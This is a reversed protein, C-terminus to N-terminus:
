KIAVDNGWAEKLDEIHLKVYAIAKKKKASRMTGVIRYDSFYISIKENGYRAHVHPYKVHESESSHFFYTIGDERDFVKANEIAIIASYVITEDSGIASVDCLPILGEKERWIYLKEPNSADACGHNQYVHLIYDELNRQNNTIEEVNLKCILLRKLNDVYKLEIM